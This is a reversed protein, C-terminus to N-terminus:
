EFYHVRVDRMGVEVGVGVNISVSVGLVTCRVSCM